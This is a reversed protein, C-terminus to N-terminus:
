YYKMEFIRYINLFQITVKKNGHMHFYNDSKIIFNPDKAGRTRLGYTKSPTKEYPVKKPTPKHIEEQAVSSDDSLESNIQFSIHFM